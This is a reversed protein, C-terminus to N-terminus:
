AAPGGPRWTLACAAVDGREITISQAGGEFRAAVNTPTRVVEVTAGAERRRPLEPGPRSPRKIPISSVLILLQRTQFAALM